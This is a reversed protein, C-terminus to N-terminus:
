ASVVRVMDARMEIETEGGFMAMLVKLREGRAMRCVGVQGAFPGAIATVRDGQVIQTPLRPNFEGAAFRTKLEALANRPIPTPRDPAAGLVCQVGRASTLKRWQQASVDFPVFLYGHFLPELVTTVTLRTRIEVRVTPLYPEFGLDVASQHALAEQCPKSKLVYDRLLSM